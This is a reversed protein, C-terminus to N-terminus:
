FTCVSVALPPPQAQSHTRTLPSQRKIKPLIHFSLLQEHTPETFSITWHAKGTFCYSSDMSNDPNAIGVYTRTRQWGKDAGQQARKTERGKGKEDDHPTEEKETCVM